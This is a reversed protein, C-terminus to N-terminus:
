SGGGVVTTCTASESLNGAEDVAKVAYVLTGIPPLRDEFDAQTRLAALQVWSGEDQQRLVHYGVADASPQWRLRVTDDEPLCVFSQPVGPPYVDQHDVSQVEGPEGIIMSGDAAVTVSRLRYSWAKGQTATEDSWSSGEFPQDRLRGWRRGESSREILAAYEEHPEWILQIGAASASLQLQTPPPPPSQPVLRAINSFDNLRRRCCRSRVAYWVVAPVLDQHAEYWEMLDDKYVLNPGRTSTSLGVEDLVAVLEGQSSLLPGVVRRDEREAPGPEQSAALSVRWIEIEELDPLPGGASTVSPYGWSLVAMNGEQHVRLDRTEAALRVVPPLPAGRRGCGSATGILVLAFGLLVLKNRSM